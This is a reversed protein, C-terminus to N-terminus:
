NGPAPAAVKGKFAPMVETAFRELQELLVSQPTGVVNGVNVQELGPYAAQVAMLKEIILEPPGCLWGGANVGDQITPLGALRARKPDGLAEIQEDTLGRVFGLPGFMKMNEEFFRTAEKMAKEPTEAIHFSFGMTLDGGLETEHGARSLADRWAEVM